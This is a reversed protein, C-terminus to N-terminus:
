CLPSHYVRDVLEMTKVADAFNTLPLEGSKICDMFHRSEQFFGMSRHNAVSGAVETAELVTPEPQNNEYIRAQGEITVFASAGEAHMECTLIRAGAAWNTWLLGTAGGEFRMLANFTNPYDSYLARVDAVVSKVEGGGLWRVLDLAHIADSTLVDVAGDYYGPSRVMHKMFTAQCQTIPGHGEVRRRAETVLPVFRRQFGVMTLCGNREAARAMHRTQDATIGPPKEIFVHVKRALAYMVLDHLQHPPMLVYVATPAVQEIMRKYDTYRREIQFRDATTHLREENLDCLAAMEVDGMEALSPYHVGNAMGGAGILGVRVKDM